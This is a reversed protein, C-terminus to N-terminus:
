KLKLIAEAIKKRYELMDQPNKSYTKEDTYITQPIELLKKAESITAKNKNSASEVAKELMVFYEYDEIGDRLIELRLSPVPKGTYTNKDHNPNRNIPYFFRGDGNGWRDQKGFPRGYGVTFSMAEEWPNQLFGEPSATESNWWNTTWVLIGKLRYKYSGWLWMRLNVADHDTFLTIWPSKPGTCLYSWHELGRENM